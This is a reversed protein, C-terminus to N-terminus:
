DHNSSYALMIIEVEGVIYMFVDGLGPCSQSHFRAHHSNIIKITSLCSSHSPVVLYVTM